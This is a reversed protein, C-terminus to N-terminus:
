GCRQRERFAAVNKRVLMRLCILCRRQPYSRGGQKRLVTTQVTLRHGRKCHTKFHIENNKAVTTQRLHEPNVCNKVRCKHDIVLGPILKGKHILYSMRHALFGSYLGYGAKSVPGTWLWHGDKNEIRSYFRQLRRETIEITKM